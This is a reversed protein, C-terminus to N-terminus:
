NKGKMQQFVVHLVSCEDDDDFPLQSFAVFCYYQHLSLACSVSVYLCLVQLLADCVHPWLVCSLLVSEADHQFFAHLVQVFADCLLKM